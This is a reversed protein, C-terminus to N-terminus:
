ATLNYVRKCHNRRAKRVLVDKEKEEFETFYKWVESKRKRGGKSKKGSEEGTVDL